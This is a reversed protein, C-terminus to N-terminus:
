LDSANLAVGSKKERLIKLILEVIVAAAEVPPLSHRSINSVVTYGSEEMEPHARYAIYASMSEATLLGPREGILVCTVESDLAPAIYRATNVRCYRVFFPTGVSVGEHALGDAIGPLLDPINAAVSPASLGDGVYLQVKPSHVCRERLLQLAEESFRRGLDPRTLMEYKNRCLTQVEFLGLAQVTEPSVESFVADAAAAQDARFRLATRTRYRPGAHGVCIRAPTVTQMRVLEARDAPNSVGIERPLSADTLDGIWRDNM